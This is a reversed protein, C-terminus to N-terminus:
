ANVGGGLTILATTWTSGAPCGAPTAGRTSSCTVSAANPWRRLISRCLRFASGPATSASSRRPMSGCRRASVSLTASNTDSARSNDHARDDLEDGIRERAAVLNVSDALEGGGEPPEARGDVVGLAGIPRRRDAMIRRVHADR